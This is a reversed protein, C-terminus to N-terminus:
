SRGNSIRVAQGLSPGSQLTFDKMWESKRKPKGTSRAPKAKATTAAERVAPVCRRVRVYRGQFQVAITKTRVAGGGRVWGKRMGPQVDRRDIRYIKGAMGCRTIM